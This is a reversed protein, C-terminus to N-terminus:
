NSSAGGAGSVGIQELVQLDRYVTKRDCRLENAAASVSVERREDLIRMLRHQRAWRIVGVWARRYRPWISSDISRSTAMVSWAGAM